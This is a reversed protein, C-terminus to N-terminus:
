DKEKTNAPPFPVGSGAPPVDFEEQRPRLGKYVLRGAGERHGQRKGYAFGLKEMGDRFEQRTLHYKSNQERMREMYAKFAKKSEFDFAEGTEMEEEIWQRIPDAARRYSKAAALAEKVTDGMFSGSRDLCQWGEMAGQILWMLIAPGEQEVVEEAFRTNDSMHEAIKQNCELVLLRRDLGGEETSSVFAPKYNGTITITAKNSFPVFDKGKGEASLESNNLMTTLMMEDWTSGKPVEDSFVGRRNRTQYLEFTRKDLSRMFFSKSVPTGYRYLIKLVVDLFVTKGTGPKGHIFLFYVDFLRGVLNSGGWRQLLPIVWDRDDAIFRLYHMWRPCHVDYGEFYAFFNPAVLTQMRMLMGHPLMNGTRLDVIGNPTNLLWPDTDFDDPKAFMAPHSRLAQEVRAHTKHSKMGLDIGVQQPGQSRYPDGIASCMRRIPDIICPDPVYVGSDLKVWGQDPTYRRNPNEAAFRDTLALDSYPFPSPGSPQSPLPGTEAAGADDGTNQDTGGANATDDTVADFLGKAREALGDTFGFQAAWEYVFQAGVQSDPFSKVKDEMEMENNKPNRLLWPKIHAYYFEWRGGCAAWMARLLVTWRHYNDLRVDNIDIKEIARGLLELDDALHPSTLDNISIALRRERASAGSFARVRTLGRTEAAENVANLFADTKDITVEPMFAWGSVLDAGEIEWRYMSGSAHPGEITLSQGSGLIEVLYKEGKDNQYHSVRKTIPPTGPKRRYLMAFHESGDRMRVVPTTNLHKEALERVMANYAVDDCDLDIVAMEVTNVAAQTFGRM